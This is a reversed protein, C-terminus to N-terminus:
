QKIRYGRSILAHAFIWLVVNCGVLTAMGLEINGDSYGTMAYRFGNIMHFFPNYIAVEHWFGPLNKISYFTGSLFSMPTIIYSTIASVHDFSEAFVGTILGLLAMFLSSFFIYFFMLAINDMDLPIFISIAIIAVIAVMFGRLVASMTMAMIMEGARLPPMLFDIIFGIVKAMILSSSTNAFAQQIVIMMILGAAMFEGFPIGGIEALQRGVALKFIALLLLGNIVPAVLTQNYVKLFRWTEKKFLTWTGIYNINFM